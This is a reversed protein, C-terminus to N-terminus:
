IRTALVFHAPLRWMQTAVQFRNIERVFGYLVIIPRYFEKREREREKGRGRTCARTGPERVHGLSRLLSPHLIRITLFAKKIVDSVTRRVAGRAKGSVLAWKLRSERSTICTDEAM